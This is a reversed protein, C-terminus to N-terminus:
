NYDSNTGTSQLSHLEEQGQDPTSQGNPCNVSEGTIFGRNM